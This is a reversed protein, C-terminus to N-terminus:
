IEVQLSFAANRCGQRGPSCTLVASFNWGRGWGAAGGGWCKGKGPAAAFVRSLHQEPISIRYSHFCVNVPPLPRPPYFLTRVFKNMRRFASSRPRNASRASPRLSVSILFLPRRLRSGTGRGRGGARVVVVVAPSILFRLSKVLECVRCSRLCKAMVHCLGSLTRSLKAARVKRARAREMGGNSPRPTRGKKQGGM